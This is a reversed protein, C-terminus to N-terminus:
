QRQPLVLCSALDGHQKVRAAVSCTGAHREQLLMYCISISSGASLMGYHQQARPLAVQKWMDTAWSASGWRSQGVV